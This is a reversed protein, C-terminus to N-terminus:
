DGLCGCCTAFDVSLSPLSPSVFSACPTHPRLPAVPVAWAGVAIRFHVPMAVPGGATGNPASGGVPLTPLPVVAGSTGSRMTFELVAGMSAEGSPLADFPNRSWKTTVTDVVSPLGTTPLTTSLAVDGASSATVGSRLQRAVVVQHSPVCVWPTHVHRPLLRLHPLPRSVRPPGFPPMTRITTSSLHLAVGWNTM